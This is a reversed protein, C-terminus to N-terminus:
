FMVLVGIMWFPPNCWNVETLWDPQAFADVGSGGLCWFYSNFKAVLHNLNSAFRDVTFPGWLREVLDFAVSHLKWDDKDYMGALADSYENFDRPIWVWQVEVGVRLCFELIEVCVRHVM